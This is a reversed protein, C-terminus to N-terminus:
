ALIAEIAQREEASFGRNALMGVADDIQSTKSAGILVSTVKEDRLVWALAMQSLKQGRQLALDNLKRVKDLKEPTIQDPNLFRSGSAARSDAPIGNLYRDTLQGGALPSFAISGVGKEQLLDLLGDEVWREFMSYKPQHIVCPTGLQALLDIAERARDAPYNSIGVYLAKGQRVIHDLARMTEELPTEPDPRHHYFIDVYELGMRKLSQDLSSILYKRSGWDGYPGDWMTYGAKTSIILEDRYPLFDEKLLRGFHSEASGPPPGYNNALDFHTIGLDFSRRLLQRSTEVLTADGFNHWLGLSIAPLKLGSRGCRRYEMTAYRAPDAQYVM